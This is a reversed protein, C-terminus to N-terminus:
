NFFRDKPRKKPLLIVIFFFSKDIKVVANNEASNTVKM